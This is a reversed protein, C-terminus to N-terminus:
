HPALEIRVYVDILDLLKDTIDSPDNKEVAEQLDEAAYIVEQVKLKTGYKIIWTCHKTLLESKQEQWTSQMEMLHSGVQSIFNELMEAKREHSPLEYQIPTDPNSSSRCTSKIPPM